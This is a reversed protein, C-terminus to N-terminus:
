PTVQVTARGQSGFRGNVREALEYIQGSHKDIEKRNQATVFHDEAVTRNISRQENIGWVAIGLLVVILKANILLLWTNLQSQRHTTM